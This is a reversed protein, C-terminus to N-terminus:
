FTIEKPLSVGLQRSLILLTLKSAHGLKAYEAMLRDISEAKQWGVWFDPPVDTLPVGATTCIRAIREQGHIVQGRTVLLYALEEAGDNVTAELSGTRIVRPQSLMETSLTELWFSFEELGRL